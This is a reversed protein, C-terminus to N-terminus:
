LRQTKKNQQASKQKRQKEEETQPMSTPADPIDFPYTTIYDQEFTFDSLNLGQNKFAQDLLKIWHRGMELQMGLDPRIVEREVKTELPITEDFPVYIPNNIGSAYRNLRTNKVSLRSFVISGGDVGFFEGWRWQQALMWCADRVEARLTREFNQTRCKPQLSNWAVVVPTCIPVNKAKPM